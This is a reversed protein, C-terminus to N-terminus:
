RRAEVPQRRHAAETVARELRHGPGVEFASVGAIGALERRFRDFERLRDYTTEADADTADAGFLATPTLFVVVRGDRRRALRASERVAARNEDDTLVVTLVTGGGALTTRARGSAIVRYLPDDAVGTASGRDALFPRLTRAFASDDDLTGAMRRAMRRSRRHIRRPGTTADGGGPVTTYLRERLREYQAQTARAPLGSVGADDVVYLGIPEGARRSEGVLALAVQRLYDFKTSGAPGAGMGVRADLIMTTVVATESEFERVHLDDLRATAKWDVRTIPDGPVYERVEGLDFGNGRLVTRRRGLTTLLDAGGATVDRARPRPPGVRVTPTSGARFSTAFLGWRDTVHVVAPPLHHEGAVRWTLEGTSTGTTEDPGLEVPVVGTDGAVPVRPEVRLGVDAPRLLSVDVAFPRGEDVFTPSTPTQEVVLAGDLWRVASVFRYGGALLWALLGAACLLFVPQVLAAAAVAFLGILAVVGWLRRTYNM